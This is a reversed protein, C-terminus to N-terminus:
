PAKKSLLASTRTVVWEQVKPAFENAIGDEIQWVQISRVQENRM